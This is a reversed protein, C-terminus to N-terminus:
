KSVEFYVEEQIGFHSQAHTPCGERGNSGNGGNGGNSSDIGKSWQHRQQTSVKAATVEEAVKAMTAAAIAQQKNSNGMATVLQQRKSSNGTTMAAAMATITEVM